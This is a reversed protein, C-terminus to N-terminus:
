NIQIQKKIIIDAAQIYQKMAKEKSVNKNNNWAVWKAHDTIYIKWPEDININGVTSQKYLGYLTLKDQDSIKFNSNSIEESKLKFENQIDM